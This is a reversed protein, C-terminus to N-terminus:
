FCLLLLLISPAFHWGATLTVTTNALLPTTYDFSTAHPSIPALSLHIYSNPYATLFAFLISGHWLTTPHQSMSGSSATPIWNATHTACQSASSTYIKSSSSSADRLPYRSTFIVNPRDTM